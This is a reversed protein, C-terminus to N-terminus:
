TALQKLIKAKFLYPNKRRAINALKAYELRDLRIDYFPQIIDTAIFTYIKEYNLKKM